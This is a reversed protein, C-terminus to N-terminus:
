RARRRVDGASTIEVDGGGPLTAKVVGERLRALPIRADGAGLDRVRGLAVPSPWLALGAADHRTAVVPEGPQKGDDSAAIQVVIVTDATDAAISLPAAAARARGLPLGRGWAMAGSETVLQALSPAGPRAVAVVWGRKPWYFLSLAECREVQMVEFDAFPAGDGDWLRLAVWSTPPDCAALAVRGSPGGAIAIPGVPPTIGAIPRDKSWAITSPADLMWLLPKKPAAAAGDDVLVLRRGGGASPLEVSQVSLRAPLAEGFHARLAAANDDLAREDSLRDVSAIKQALEWPRQAPVPTLLTGLRIRQTTMAAAALTVWADQGWVAEWSFVADWGAAESVAALEAFDREAAYPIV